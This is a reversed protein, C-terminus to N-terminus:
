HGSIVATRRSLARLTQAVGRVRLTLSTRPTLGAAVPLDRECAALESLYPGYVRRKLITTLRVGYEHLGSDYVGFMMRRMGHFHFFILPCGNILVGSGTDRISELGESWPGTNMGPKDLIATSKFLAPVRDLYKQDAFREEEVGMRCWELCLRRWWAVFQAGQSDNAVDVWGANFLGYKRRDANQPGFAHPTLSISSGRTERDVAAADAFFYLDSDLYSLRETDPFHTLLYGLLIPKCTFFHEVKTRGTRAGRLAADWSELEHVSIVSVRPLALDALTRLTEDDLCLVHLQFEGAHRLLSRHLALGRSLYARDFLTCYRRM